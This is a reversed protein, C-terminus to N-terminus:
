AEGWVDGPVLLRADKAKKDGRAYAELEKRFKQIFALAPMATGEGFACITNGMISNAIDHLTEVDSMSGEGTLLKHVTRDLWASGERCPTCQGCSEHHYFHMLNEFALVPDTGDAMVTVCCTGLMTGCGRMTDVGLPVDFVSKGHWAHMPSKDDPAQVTEEPRLIPTSSGGPIVCMVGRDGLVGGGIDHILENLTPGCALEVIGPKKVHGNIGYLRVGGDGTAHLTSLKSFEECGMDFAAPCAAITELNNVTTPCGFVGAQAPFPPKMRPEGRKGELSNLMSTEEGCIYAGAGSHVIINVEFNTGFPTKGLYGKAEAEKIAANLRAKALHLEDRVYIYATHAGIGFCAIISGEICAHPNQEMLTRDKHTGPEGEDANVALYAPKTAHPRMFSWKVGMPFGAGGRGRINAKKAEAVTQEQTMSTLVKKATRYGTAHKEYADMTWGQPVSYVKTLLDTRKLM